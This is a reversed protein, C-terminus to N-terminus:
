LVEERYEEMANIKFRYVSKMWVRRSYDELFETSFELLVQSFGKM